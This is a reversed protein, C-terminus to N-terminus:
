EELRRTQILSGIVVAVFLLVFLRNGWKGFIM